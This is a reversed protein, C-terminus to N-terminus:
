FMAKAVLAPYPPGTIARVGIRHAPDAGAFADVVYLDQGELRAVVKTRLGDFNDEDLPQNVPGWWIRDESGPERVVFKDRPSRGTHLGTDVVLPGGEALQGDGRLLARTYLLSTSPNWHVAGAAAIGHAQLDASDRLPTTTM